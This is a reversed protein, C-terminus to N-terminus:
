LLSTRSFIVLSGTEDKSRASDSSCSRQSSCPKLILHTMVRKSLWQISRGSSTSFINFRVPLQIHGHCRIGVRGLVGDFDAPHHDGFSGEHFKKAGTEAFSLTRSAAVEWQRLGCPSNPFHLPRATCRTFFEVPHTAPGNELWM